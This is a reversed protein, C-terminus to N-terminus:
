ASFPASLSDEYLAVQVLLRLFDPRQDAASGAPRPLGCRCPFIGVLVNRGGLSARTLPADRESLSRLPGAAPDPMTLGSLAVISGNSQTAAIGALQDASEERVDDLLEQFAEANQLRGIRVAREVNRM